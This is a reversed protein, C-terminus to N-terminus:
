REPPTWEIRDSWCRQAARLADAARVELGDRDLDMFTVYQRIGQKIREPVADAHAWGVVYRIEIRGNRRDSQLSPWSQGPKLVVRGPRTTTDIDYVSSALTQQVGDADYYTISTVSQLPAAMPLPIECAWEDLTLSWTQTLIGRGMYSEAEERASVIYADLLADSATDTIRAHAKVDELTVPESTPGTVLSWRCFVERSVRVAVAEVHYRNRDRPPRRRRV